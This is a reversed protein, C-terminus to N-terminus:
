DRSANREVLVGDVYDRDPHYTTALYDQLGVLAATSM